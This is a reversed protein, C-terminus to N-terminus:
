EIFILDYFAIIGGNRSQRFIIAPIASFGAPLKRESDAQFSLYKQQTVFSAPNGRAPRTHAQLGMGNRLLIWRRKKSLLANKFKGESVSFM